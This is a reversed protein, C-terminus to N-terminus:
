GSCNVSKAPEFAFPGASYLDFPSNDSVTRRDGWLYSGSSGGYLDTPQDCKKDPSGVLSAKCKHAGYSTVTKPARIFFYGNKDTTAKKEQPYKTNNCQLKVVAGQLPTAGLLTQVGRYKCPKCFVVGQVAVFKRPPLSFPSHAPAHAPSHSHHHHTPALAPAQAPPHAHRHHHHTPAHAPAHSPAHAPSHVLLPLPESHTAATVALFSSSFLLAFSLTFSLAYAM